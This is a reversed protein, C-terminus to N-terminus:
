KKNKQEYYKINWNAFKRLGEKLNTKCKYCYSTEFKKTYSHTKLM